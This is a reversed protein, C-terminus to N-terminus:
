PCTGTTNSGGVSLSTPATLDTVSVGTKRRYTTGSVTVCVDYLGSPVGPDANPGAAPNSPVIYGASDITYFTNGGCGVSKATLKVTKGTLGGTTIRLSPEHVTVSQNGGPLMTVFTPTSPSANACDGTYVSYPSSFPFLTAATIQSQNSGNGFVRPGAPLGSQAVSVSSADAPVTSSGKKTDFSVALSSGVDYQFDVHAVTDDVVSAPRAITSVGGADVYGTKSVNVTYNGAPLYGFFACGGSDTTGSSARPGTLDVDVGGVGNGNRDTIGVALAGEDGFSGTPPAVLSTITVPKAGRMQPWTVTSIIKLYSADNSNGACNSTASGDVLWESRSAITYTNGRVLKSSTARYNSLEKVRFARLREQDQQALQAGVARTKSQGSTAGAADLGTLVGVAVLAVLVASVLVEIMTTGSEERRIRAPLSALGM